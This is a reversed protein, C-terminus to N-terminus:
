APLRLGALDTVLSAQNEALRAREAWAVAEETAATNDSGILDTVKRDAYEAADFWAGIIRETFGPCVTTAM